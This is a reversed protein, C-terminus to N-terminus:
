SGVVGHIFYSFELALKVHDGLALPPTTEMRQVVPNVPTVDQHLRPFSNSRVSTGGSHIPLGELIDLPMADLFEKPLEL